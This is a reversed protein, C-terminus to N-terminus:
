RLPAYIQETVSVEGWSRTTAVPSAEALDVRGCDAFFNAVYDTDASSNTRTPYDAVSSLAIKRLMEKLDDETWDGNSFEALRLEIEYALEEAAKDDDQEINWARPILWNRFEGLSIESGVYRGLWEHIEIEIPSQM